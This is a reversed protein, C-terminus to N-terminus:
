KEDSVVSITAIKERNFTIKDVNRTRSSNLENAQSIRGFDSRIKTFIILNDYQIGKAVFAM